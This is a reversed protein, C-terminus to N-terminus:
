NLSIISGSKNEICLKSASCVVTVKPFLLLKDRYRGHFFLESASSFLSIRPPEHATFWTEKELEFAPPLTRYQKALARRPALQTFLPAYIYSPSLFSPSLFLRTENVASLFARIAWRTSYGEPTIFVVLSIRESYPWPHKPTQRKFAFHIFSRRNPVSTGLSM